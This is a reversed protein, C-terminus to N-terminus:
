CMRLVPPIIPTELTKHLSFYLEFLILTSSFGKYLRKSTVSCDIPRKFAPLVSPVLSLSSPRGKRTLLRTRGAKRNAHRQLYEPGGAPESGQSRNLHHTRAADGHEV